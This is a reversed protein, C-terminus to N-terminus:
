YSRKAWSPRFCSWQLTAFFGTSDVASYTNLPSGFHNHTLVTNSSIQTGLSTHNGSNDTINVSSDIPSAPQTSPQSGCSAALVALFILACIPCHGDPDIYKVPNGYSYAYRDWAQVGQATEPVIVDPQIWRSLAPDYWRSGYWYLNIYSDNIQGTFQRKTPPTGSTFRNEGWAKYRLETQYAGSSNATISTSGLHDGFLYSVTSGASTVERMAVRAGGAYYYLRWKQGAPPTFLLQKRLGSNSGYKVLRNPSLAPPAALPKNGQVAMEPLEAGEGGWFINVNCGGGLAFTLVGSLSGAPVGTGGRFTTIWRYITGQGPHNISLGTVTTPPDYDNGLYYRTTEYFQEDVYHVGDSTWNLTTGSLNVSASNNNRVEAYLVNNSVWSNAMGLNACSPTPTATPTPTKTPTPTFTPTPTPLFVELYDGIYVTLGEADQVKVRKGDGDYTYSASASGSVSTMHNETDYGLNYSNSGVVRTSMNGNADYWYKQVGNLQTVAHKHTADYTYSVGGKSSLNGTSTSYIYQEAAYDGQGGTGGSAAASTLRDLNDYIFTQTQPSGAKWDYINLLNGDTDYKSSDTGTYYRLDQLSTLNTPTGTTIRKLRGWGKDTSWPFYTYDTLLTPTAETNGLKQLEVQGAANYQTGVVYHGNSANSDVTNLALQPLYDFVVQEETQGGTGSPYKMWVLQDASGYSWETTYTGAGTITKSERTVRGRQDYRWSTSGSPDTMGTRYGKGYQQNGPDQLDYSYTVAYTPSAPCQTTDNTYYKGVIRNLDDYYLCTRQHKADDQVELNGLADYEYDWAGMDPDNMTLKRGAYDYTLTVTAGGRVVSTLRDLNDFGYDVLPNIPPDITDVRGRPDYNTTEVHGNADTHLIKGVQYDYSEIQTDAGSNSQWVGLVRELIDYTQYSGTDAPASPTHYGPAVPTPIAYQISHSKATGYPDYATDQIVWCTDPNADVDTSCANDTLTARQSQTQVPQGLGNYYQATVSDTDTDILKTKTVAYFNAGNTYALEMTPSNVLSDGPRALKSLRGFNDYDAETIGTNPTQMWVPKGFDPDYQYRTYYGLDNKEWGLYTHYSDATCTDGSEDGYCYTTMEPYQSALSTATGVDKYVTVSSGNGWTDYAYASDAYFPNSDEFYLLTRENTLKGMTPSDTYDTDLDSNDYLFYHATLLSSYSTYCSGNHAGVPCNYTNTYGPFGVLYVGSTNPYYQNKTLRYDVFETTNADWYSEVQHTLNGYQTGGQNAEDYYLYTAAGSAPSGEGEYSWSQVYTTRSWTVHLDAFDDFPNALPVQYTDDKEFNTFSLQYINMEAYADLFVIGGNQNVWNRFRWTRNEPENYDTLWYEDFQSPDDRQWVRLYLDGNTGGNDMILLLNYWRDKAVVWDLYYSHTTSGVIYQAITNGYTDVYLGWRRYNAPVGDDHEAALVTEVTSGGFLRFSVLAAEHNSLSESNRYFYSSWGTGYSSNKLAADGSIREIGQKDAQFVWNGNLSDFADSFSKTGVMSGQSGGKREDDQYFWSTTVRQQGDTGAPGTERVMANGRYETYAPDYLVGGSDVAASHETDNTAADDYEYSFTYDQGTLSERVRRATVRYHTPLLKFTISEVLCNDCKIIRQTSWGQQNYIASAPLYVVGSFTLPNPRSSGNIGSSTVTVSMGSTYELGIQAEHIWSGTDKYLRAEVYYASGPRFGGGAIDHRAIGEVSLRNNESGDCWADPGEWSECLETGIFDHTSIRDEDADEDRWPPSEYSYTVRGSYGNNAETLHMGDAYTFTTTPLTAGSLGTEQLSSLTFTKGGSYWSNGSFIETYSPTYKRVTSWGGAGTTDRQIHIYKLRKRQFFVTKGGNNIWTNRYDTRLTTDLEFYVRYLNNPHPDVAPLNGAPKDCYRRRM